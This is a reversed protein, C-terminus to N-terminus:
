IVEQGFVKIIGKADEIPENIELISTNPKVEFQNGCIIKENWTVFMNIAEPLKGKKVIVQWNKKIKHPRVILYTNFDGRSSESITCSTCDKVDLELEGNKPIEIQAIIIDLDLDLKKITDFKSDTFIEGMAGEDIKNLKRKDNGSMSAGVIIVLLIVSGLSNSLVDLFSLGFADQKERRNKM